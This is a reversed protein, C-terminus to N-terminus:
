YLGTAGGEPRATDTDTGPDNALGQGVCLHLSPGGKLAQQATERMSAAKSM